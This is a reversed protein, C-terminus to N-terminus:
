SGERMGPLLEFYSGLSTAVLSLVASTLPSSGDRAVREAAQQQAPGTPMETLVGILDPLVQIFSFLFFFVVLYFVGITFRPRFTAARGRRSEGQGAGQGASGGQESPTEQGSSRQESM